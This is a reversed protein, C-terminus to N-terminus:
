RRWRPSSARGRLSAIEQRAAAIKEDVDRTQSRQYLIYGLLAITLVGLGALLMTMRRTYERAAEYPNSALNINIRM